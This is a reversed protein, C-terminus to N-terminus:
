SPQTQFFPRTGKLHCGSFRCGDRLFYQPQHLANETKCCDLDGRECYRRITRKNRQLGAELFLHAARPVSVWTVADSQVDTQGSMDPTPQSINNGGYCSAWCASQRGSTALTSSLDAHRWLVTFRFQLVVACESPATSLSLACLLAETPAARSQAAGMRSFLPRSRETGVLDVPLGSIFASSVQM